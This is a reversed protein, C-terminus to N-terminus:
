RAAPWIPGHPALSLHPEWFVGWYGLRNSALIALVSPFLLFASLGTAAAAAVILRRALRRWDPLDRLASRALLWVLAFAAGSAASEPHGGLAWVTLVCTATWFGARGDERRLLEIALLAWPWLSIVATHPFLVWATMTVSLSFAVAGFIGGRIVPAARAAVAMDGHTRPFRSRRSSASPPPSRCPAGSSCPPIFRARSATAALVMGAGNWRNRWPLAGERFAIRVAQAWPVFQMTINNLNENYRSM